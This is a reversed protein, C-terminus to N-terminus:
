DLGDFFHLKVPRLAQWHLPDFGPNHFDSEPEEQEGREEGEATEPLFFPLTYKAVAV